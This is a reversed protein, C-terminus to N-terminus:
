GIFVTHGVKLPYLHSKSRQIIRLSLENFLKKILFGLRFDLAYSTEVKASNPIRNKPNQDCTTALTFHRLIGGECMPRCGMRPHKAPFSLSDM